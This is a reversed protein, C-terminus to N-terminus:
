HLEQRVGEREGIWSGHLTSVVPAINEEIYRFQKRNWSVLPLHVSVVDISRRRKLQNLARLRMSASRNAFSMPLPAWRIPIVEVGNTYTANAQAQSYHCNSQTWAAGYPRCSPLCSLGHWGM